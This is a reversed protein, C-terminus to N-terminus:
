IGALLAIGGVLLFIGTVLAPVAVGLSALGLLTLGIGGTIRYIM